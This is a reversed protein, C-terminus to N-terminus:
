REAHSTAGGGAEPCLTVEPMAQTFTQLHPHRNPVICYNCFAM